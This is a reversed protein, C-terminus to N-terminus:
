AIRIYDNNRFNAIFIIPIRMDEMSCNRIRQYFIYKYSISHICHRVFFVVSDSSSSFVSSNSLPDCVQLTYNEINTTLNLKSTQLVYSSPQGFSAAIFDEAIAETDILVPHSVEISSILNKIEEISSENIVNLNQGKLYLYNLVNGLATTQWSVYVSTREGANIDCINRIVYSGYDKYKADYAQVSVIRNKGVPIKEIVIEGENIGNKVSVKKKAIEETIGDGTVYVDAYSISSVELKKSILESSRLCVSGYIGSDEDGNHSDIQNSCSFLFVSAFVLGAGAFFVNRLSM